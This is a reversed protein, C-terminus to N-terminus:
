TAPFTCLKPDTRIVKIIYIKEKTRGNNNRHQYIHFGM